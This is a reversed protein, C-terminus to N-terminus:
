YARFFTTRGNGNGLLKMMLDHSSGPERRLGVACGGSLGHLPSTRKGMADTIVCPSRAHQAVPWPGSRIGLLSLVSLCQPVAGFTQSVDMCKPIKHNM